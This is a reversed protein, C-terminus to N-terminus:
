RRKMVCACSSIFIKDLGDWSVGGVDDFWFLIAQLQTSNALQVTAYQMNWICFEEVLKHIPRKTFCLRLSGM